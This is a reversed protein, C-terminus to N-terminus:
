DGSCVLNVTAKMNERTRKGAPCDDMCEQLDDISIEDMRLHWVPRLHKIAAKYCDLTSKGARHTPFWLDYLAKFTISTGPRQTKGEAKLIPLAAIADTKKAFARSRTIRKPRDIGNREYGITVM